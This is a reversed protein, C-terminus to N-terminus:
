GAEGPSIFRLNTIMLICQYECYKGREGDKKCRYKVTWQNISMANIGTSPVRNCDECLKACKDQLALKDSVEVDRYQDLADDTFGVCSGDDM